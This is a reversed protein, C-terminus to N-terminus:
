VIHYSDILEISPNINLDLSFSYLQIPPAVKRAGCNDLAVETSTTSNWQQTTCKDQYEYDCLIMNSDHLSPYIPNKSIILKDSQTEGIDSGVPHNDRNITSENMYLTEGNQPEMFESSGLPSKAYALNSFFSSGSCNGSDRNHCNRQTQSTSGLHNETVLPLKSYTSSMSIKRDGFINAFVHNLERETRTCINYEEPALTGAKGYDGAASDVSISSKESKTDAPSFTWKKKENLDSNLINAQIPSITLVPPSMTNIKRGPDFDPNIKPKSIKDWWKRKISFAMISIIFILAILAVCVVPIIKLMENPSAPTIFALPKSKDSEIMYNNYNTSMTATLSYSTKPDLNSSIIEIFGVTNLGQMPEKQGEGTIGYLNIKLGNVFSKKGEYKAEWTVKFNGNETKQVKLVPTKPKIFTGTELEKVFLVNGGKLLSTNFIEGIVFGPVKIKCECDTTRDTTKFACAYEKSVGGPEHKVNLKYESCSESSLHCKMEEDYDNFCTLDTETPELSNIAYVVSNFLLIFFIQSAPVGFRM